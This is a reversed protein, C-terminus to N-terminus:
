YQPTMAWIMKNQAKKGKPKPKKGKGLGLMGAMEGVQGVTNAINSVTGVANNIDDLFNGALLENGAKKRRRGALLENGAIREDGALFENGALEMNGGSHGLGILGAIDGLIGGSGQHQQPYRQTGFIVSDPYNGGAIRENGGNELDHVKQTLQMVRKTLLLILKRNEQEMSNRYIIYPYLFITYLLEYFVFLIIDHRIMATILTYNM